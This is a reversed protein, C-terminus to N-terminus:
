RQVQIPRGIQNRQGLAGALGGSPDPALRRPQTPRLRVAQARRTPDDNRSVAEPGGDLGAARSILSAVQLLGGQAEVRAM